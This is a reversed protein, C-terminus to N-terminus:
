NSCSGLVYREDEERMKVTGREYLPEHGLESRSQHIEAVSPFSRTAVPSPIRVTRLKHFDARYQCQDLAERLSDRIEVLFHARELNRESQM